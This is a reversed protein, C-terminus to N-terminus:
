TGSDHRLIPLLPQFNEKAAAAAAATRAAPTATFVRMAATGRRTSPESSRGETNVGDWVSSRGEAREKKEMLRKLFKSNYRISSQHKERDGKKSCSRSSEHCWSPIVYMDCSLYVMIKLCHAHVFQNTILGPTSQPLGKNRSSNRQAGWLM